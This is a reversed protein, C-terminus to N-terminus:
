RHTDTRFRVFIGRKDRHCTSAALHHLRALDAPDVDDYKRDRGLLGGTELVSRPLDASLTPSQFLYHTQFMLQIRSTYVQYLWLQNEDSNGEVAFV